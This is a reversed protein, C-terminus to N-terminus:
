QLVHHRDLGHRCSSGISSHHEDDYYHHDYGGYPDYGSRYHGHYTRNHSCANCGRKFKRHKRYHRRDCYRRNRHHSQNWAFYSGFSGIFVQFGGRGFGGFGHSGHSFAPLSLAATLGGVLLLKRIM